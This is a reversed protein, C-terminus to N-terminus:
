TKVALRRFRQNQYGKIMLKFSQECLGSEKRKRQCLSSGVRWRISFLGPRNTCGTELRGGCAGM